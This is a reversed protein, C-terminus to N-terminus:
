QDSKYQTSWSTWETKKQLIATTTSRQRGENYVIKNSQIRVTIEAHM